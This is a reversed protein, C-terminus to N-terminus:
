AGARASRGTSPEGGGPRSGRDAPMASAADARASPVAMDAFMPAVAEMLGGPSRRFHGSPRPPLSGTRRGTAPRFGPRFAGMMSRAATTSSRDGDRALAERIAGVILGRVLGPDRFRVDSKAPHVNVDVLAPDLQIDLVAVPYRGSPITEAYAGRLASTILKDQSRGATSSPSNIRPTAAISCRCGPM